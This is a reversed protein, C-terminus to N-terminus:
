YETKGKKVTARVMDGFSASALRNLDGESEPSLIIYLNKYGQIQGSTTEQLDEADDKNTMNRFLSLAEVIGGYQGYGALICDGHELKWCVGDHIAIQIFIQRTEDIKGNNACASITATEAAINKHPRRNLLKRAEDPRECLGGLAAEMSIRRHWLLIWVGVRVFVDLVMNWSVVNKEVMKDDVEAGFADGQERCVSCADSVLHKAPQYTEGLRM